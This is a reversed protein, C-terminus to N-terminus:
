KEQTQRLQLCESQLRSFDERSYGVEGEDVVPLNRIRVPHSVAMQTFCGRRRSPLGKFRIRHFANRIPIVEIREHATSESFRSEAAHGLLWGRMLATKLWHDSKDEKVSDSAYHLMPLRGGGVSGLSLSAQKQVNNSM